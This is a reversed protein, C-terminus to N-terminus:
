KWSIEKWHDVTLRFVGAILLAVLPYSLAYEVMYAMGAVLRGIHENAGLLQVTAKIGRNLGYAWVALLELGIWITWLTPGLTSRSRILLPLTPIIFILRYDYNSIVYFCASILSAGYMFLLRDWWCSSFEFTVWPV